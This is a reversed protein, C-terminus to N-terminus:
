EKNEKKTFKLDKLLKAFDTENKNLYTMIRKEIKVQYKQYEESVEKVISTEKYANLLENQKETLKDAEASQEPSLKNKESLVVVLEKKLNDLSPKLKKNRYAEFTETTKLIELWQENIKSVQKSIKQNIEKNATQNKGQVYYIQLVTKGSRYLLQYKEELSALNQAWWHAETENNNSALVLQEYNQAKTARNKSGMPLPTVIVQAKM